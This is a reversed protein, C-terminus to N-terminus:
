RSTLIEPFAVLHGLPTESDKDESFQRGVSSSMVKLRDLM